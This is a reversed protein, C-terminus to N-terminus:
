APGGAQAERRVIGAALKEESVAGNIKLDATMLPNTVDYDWADSPVLQHHWVYKGTDANM